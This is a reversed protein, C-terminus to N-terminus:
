AKGGYAFRNFCPLHFDQANAESAVVAFKGLGTTTGYDLRYIKLRKELIARIFDQFKQKNIESRYYASLVTTNGTVEFQATALQELQSLLGNLAELAYRGSLVNCRGGIAVQLVGAQKLAALQYQNIGLIKCAEHAPVVSSLLSALADISKKEFIGTEVKRHPRPVKRIVGLKVFRKFWGHSIGLVHRATEFSITEFAREPAMITHVVGPDAQPSLYITQKGDAFRYASFFRSVERRLCEPAKPSSAWRQFGGITTQSIDTVSIFSREDALRSLAESLAKHLGHPWNLIAQGVTSALRHTENVEFKQRSGKGNPMALLALYRILDLLDAQSLATIEDPVSKPVPVVGWGLKHQILSALVLAADDAVKADGPKLERGCKCRALGPRTWTLRRGCGPCRDVLQVAHVPCATVLWVDWIARTRGTEQVCAPCLTAWRPSVDRWPMRVDGRVWCTKDAKELDYAMANLGDDSVGLMAVLDPVLSKPVHTRCDHGLGQLWQGFGRLGNQEAVRLVYGTLSEEPDPSPRVLFRPVQTQITM